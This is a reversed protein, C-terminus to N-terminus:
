FEEYLSHITPTTPVKVSQTTVAKAPYQQFFFQKQNMKDVLHQEERMIRRVWQRDNQVENFM